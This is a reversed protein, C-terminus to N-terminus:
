RRYCRATGDLRCSRTGDRQQRSSANGGRESRGRGPRVSTQDADVGRTSGSGGVVGPRVLTQGTDVPSAIKTPRVLGPHVSTQDIPRGAPEQSTSSHSVSASTVNDMHRISNVMDSAVYGSVVAGYSAGSKILGAALLEALLTEGDRDSAVIDIPVYGQPVDQVNVNDDAAGVAGTM